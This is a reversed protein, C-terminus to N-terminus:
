ATSRTAAALVVDVAADMDDPLFTPLRDESLFGRLQEDLEDSRRGYIFTPRPGNGRREQGGAALDLEYLTCTASTPGDMLVVVAGSREIQRGTDAYTMWPTGTLSKEVHAGRAELAAVLADAEGDYSTDAVFVVPAALTKGFLRSLLGPM